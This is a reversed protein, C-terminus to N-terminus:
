APPTTDVLIKGEAFDKIQKAIKMIATIDPPAAPDPYILKTAEIALSCIQTNHGYMITDLHDRPNFPRDEPRPTTM